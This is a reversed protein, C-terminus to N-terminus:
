AGKQNTRANVTGSGSTFAYSLRWWKAASAWILWGFDDAAGGAAHESNELLTWHTIGTVSGDPLTQGVDNSFEVYFTGVPAGTWYAQFSLYAYQESNIPASFRNATLAVNTFVASNETEM